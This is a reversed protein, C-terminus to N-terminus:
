IVITVRNRTRNEGRPSHACFSLTQQSHLRLFTDKGLFCIGHCNNKGMGREQKISSMRKGHVLKSYNMFM